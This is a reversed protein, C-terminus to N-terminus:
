KGYNKLDPTKQIVIILRYYLNNIIKLCLLIM